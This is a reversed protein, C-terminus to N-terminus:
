WSQFTESRLLLCMVVQVYLDYLLKMMKPALMARVVLMYRASYWWRMSSAGCFCMAHLLTRNEECVLRARCNSTEAAGKELSMPAFLIYFVLVIRIVERRSVM